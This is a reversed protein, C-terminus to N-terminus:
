SRREKWLQHFTKGQPAPFDRNQTWGEALPLKGKLTALSWPKGEDGDTQEIGHM